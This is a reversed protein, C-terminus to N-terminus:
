NGAGDSQTLLSSDMTGGLSGLTAQILMCPQTSSNTPMGNNPDPNGAAANNYDDLASQKINVSDTINNQDDM